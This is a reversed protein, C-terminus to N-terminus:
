GGRREGLGRRRHRRALHVHAVRVHALAATRWVDKKECARCCQQGAIMKAAKQTMEVYLIVPEGANASIAKDEM